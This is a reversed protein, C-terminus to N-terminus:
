EEKGNADLSLSNNYEVEGNEDLPDIVYGTIDEAYEVEYGNHNGDLISHLDLDQVKPNRVINCGKPTASEVNPVKVRVVAYIHTNYKKM